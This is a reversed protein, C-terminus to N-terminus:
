KMNSHSIILKQGWFSAKRQCLQPVVWMRHKDDQRRFCQKSCIHHLSWIPTTNIVKAQGLAELTLICQQVCTFLAFVLGNPIASQHLDKKKKVKFLQKVPQIARFKTWTCDWMHCLCLWNWQTQSTTNLHKFNGIFSSMFQLLAAQKWKAEKCVWNRLKLVMRYLVIYCHNLRGFHTVENCNCDKRM